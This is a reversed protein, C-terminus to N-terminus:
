AEKCFGVSEFCLGSNTSTLALQSALKSGHFMRLVSFVGAPHKSSKPLHLLNLVCVCVCMDNSFQLSSNSQYCSRLPLADSVRHMIAGDNQPFASRCCCPHWPADYLCWIIMEDSGADGIWLWGKWSAIVLAAFDCPTCLTAWSVVISM